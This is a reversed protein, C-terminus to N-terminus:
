FPGYGLYTWSRGDQDEVNADYLEAAHREPDLVEMRCFRGEMPSRPPLARPTWNPVPFGIVQGLDNHLLDMNGEIGRVRAKRVSSWASHRRTVGPHALAIANGDDRVACEIM